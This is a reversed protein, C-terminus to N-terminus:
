PPGTLAPPVSVVEMFRQPEALPRFGHKAYLGHADNTGLM